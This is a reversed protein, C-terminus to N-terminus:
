TGEGPSKVDQVQDLHSFAEARRVARNVVQLGTTVSGLLGLLFGVMHRGDFVPAIVVWITSVFAAVTIVALVAISARSPVETSRHSETVTGM